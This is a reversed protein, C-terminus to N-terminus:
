TIIEYIPQTISMKNVANKQHDFQLIKTTPLMKTVDTDHIIIFVDLIDQTACSLTQSSTCGLSLFSGISWGLPLFIYLEITPIVWFAQRSQHLGLRLFTTCTYCSPQRTCPFLHGILFWQALLVSCEFFYVAGFRHGKYVTQDNTFVRTLWDKFDQSSFM